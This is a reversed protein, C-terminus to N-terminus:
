AGKAESCRRIDREEDMLPLGRTAAADILKGFDHGFNTKVEQDGLGSLRLFSKLYLEIATLWSSLSPRMQTPCRRGPATCCCALNGIPALM